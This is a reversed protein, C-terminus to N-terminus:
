KILGALEQLKACFAKPDYAAITKLVKKEELDGLDQLENANALIAATFKDNDVDRYLRTLFDSKALKTLQEPSIPQEKALMELHAKFEAFGDNYAKDMPKKPDDANAAAWIVKKMIELRKDRNFYPELDLMTTLEGLKAATTKDVALERCAVRLTSGIQRASEYDPLRAPDEASGAYLKCIGTVMQRVNERTFDAKRVSVILDDCWKILDKGEARLDEPSGFPRASTAAAFKGLKDKLGAPVKAGPYALAPYLSALPWLRVVPRGPIVRAAVEGPIHYGFGRDQRYGPFKLDHHCAFCDSHAMALEPWRGKPENGLDPNVALEPWRSKEPVQFDARDHVLRVTERVAVISGLVASRTQQFPLAQLHYNKIIAQSGDRLATQFYPVDKADRWHQPENKSFTAIEIPPLPPHGAAMMAHTVVKGEAANGVHCSMCLEARIVPDRVDRMGQDFKAEPTKPRWTRKDQHDGRWGGGSKKTSPGHCGTCSVGEKVDLTFAKKEEETKTKTLNDLTLNYMAHCGLCGTKPQLVAKEDKLLIKGIQRGREGELVAYAQAHKDYARWIASETFLCFDMSGTKGATPAAHCEMCDKSPSSVFEKWATAASAASQSLSQARAPRNVLFGIGLSVAVALVAVAIVKKSFFLKPM